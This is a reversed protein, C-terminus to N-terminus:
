LLSHFHIRSTFKTREEKRATAERRVSNTRGEERLVRSAEAEKENGCDLRCLHILGRIGKVALLAYNWLSPFPTSSINILQIFIWHTHTHTDTNIAQLCLRTGLSGMGWHLVTCVPHRCSWRHIGLLNCQTGIHTLHTHIMPTDSFPWLKGWPVNGKKRM